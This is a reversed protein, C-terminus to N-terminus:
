LGLIMEQIGRKEENGYIIKEMIGLVKEFSKEIGCATFLLILLIIVGKLRKM